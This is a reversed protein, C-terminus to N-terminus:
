GGVANQKTSLDKSIVGNQNLWDDNELNHDIM